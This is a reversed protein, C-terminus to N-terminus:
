GMALREWTSTLPLWTVMLSPKEVSAPTYQEVIQGQSFFRNMTLVSIILPTFNPQTRAFTVDPSRNPFNNQNHPYFKIVSCFLQTELISFTSSNFIDTRTKKVFIKTKRWTRLPASVNCSSDGMWKNGCGFVLGFLHCKSLGHMVQVMYLNETYITNLQFLTNMVRDLNTKIKQWNNRFPLTQKSAIQWM